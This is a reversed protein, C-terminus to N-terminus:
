ALQDEFSHCEIHDGIVCREENSARDPKARLARLSTMLDVTM